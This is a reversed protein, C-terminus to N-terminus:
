IHIYTYIHVSYVYTSYIRLVGDMSATSNRFKCKVYTGPVTRDTRNSGLSDWKHVGKPCEMDGRVYMSNLADLCSSDRVDLM